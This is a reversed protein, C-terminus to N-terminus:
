LNLESIAQFYWFLWFLVCTICRFALYERWASLSWDHVPMIMVYSTSRLNRKHLCSFCSFDPFFVRCPKASAQMIKCFLNRSQPIDYQNIYIYRSPFPSRGVESKLYPTAAFLVM